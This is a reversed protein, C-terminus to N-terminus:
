YIFFSLTTKMKELSREIEKGQLFKIKKQLNNGGGFLASLNKFFHLQLEDHM